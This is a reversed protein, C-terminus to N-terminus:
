LKRSDGTNRFMRQSGHDCFSACEVGSFFYHLGCNGPLTSQSAQSPLVRTAPVATHHLPRNDLAWKNPDIQLYTNSFFCVFFYCHTEYLSYWWLSESSIMAARAATTFWSSSEIRSSAVRTRASNSPICLTERNSWVSSFANQSALSLGLVNWVEVLSDLTCRHFSRSIEALLTRSRQGFPDCM